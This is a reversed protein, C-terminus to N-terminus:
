RMVLAKRTEEFGPSTVRYYYIGPAVTQGAADRGDWSVTTEGASGYGEYHRVLRGAVDFVALTYDGPEPLRFSISTASRFPNPHNQALFPEAPRIPVDHEYFIIPTDLPIWGAPVPWGNNIYDAVDKALELNTGADIQNDCFTIAQSVVAGDDSIVGNLPLCGSATNLLLAMLQQRARAVMEQAGHLNLLEGAVDLKDTCEGSAPPVYIAVENALNGNFHTEILDLYDCLSSTVQPPGNGKLQRMTVGKSLVDDPTAVKVQHKWYGITRPCFVMVQNLFAFDIQTTQGSVVTAIAETDGSYGLPAVVSITYDAPALDLIEYAGSENTFTTAVLEGATDYANVRVGYMPSGPDPDDGTVTGAAAGPQVATGEEIISINDFFPAATPPYWPSGYYWWAMAGLRIRMSTANPDLLYGPIQYVAHFDGGTGYLLYEYPKWTGGDEPAPCAVWWRMFVGCGLPLDMYAHFDVKYGTAELPTIPITPSEMAMEYGGVSSPGFPFVGTEADYAVWSWSYPWDAPGCPTGLSCEPNEVLRFEGGLGFASADWGDYGTDFTDNPFGTVRVEDLRFAGDTNIAGDEDSYGGDSSFRFRIVVTMGGYASLNNSRTVFGGVQGGEWASNGTYSALRTYTDGGDTSVEVYVDDWDRETDYQIDYALIAGAPLTFEKSLYQQWGNGYGPNPTTSTGFDEGCWVVNRGGYAQPSFHVPQQTADVGVWGQPDGNDFNYSHINQAVAPVAGLVVLAMCFLLATCVAEKKSSM